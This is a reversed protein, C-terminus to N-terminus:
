LNIKEYKLEIVGTKGSNVGLLKLNLRNQIGTFLPKGSGLIVPMVAIRFEDILNLNVFSTILNGGGYLWINKGDEQKLKSVAGDLDSKIIVPNGKFQDKSGSFVYKKMKNTTDYFKKEFVSAGEPPIYAGWKEYSIRGYLITDIDQLFESLAKGTEESFVMWDVEGNPGEIYGDLSTALSLIIKRM